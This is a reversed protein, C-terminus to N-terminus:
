QSALILTDSPRFYLKVEQGVSVSKDVQLDAILNLGDSQGFIRTVSGLYSLASLRVKIENAQDVPDLLLHEPRVIAIVKQGVVVDLGPPYKGLMKGIPTKLTVFGDRSVVEGTVSTAQGIFDAVFLSRPFEYVERPSGVQLLRGRNMVGIRDAISMAEEQDHTVYIATIGLERQIKRLETRTEIRLKADLNSLPEDMLLIQPEIALARAVAVRQQQGGSLQLPSRDELGKLQLLDLVDAVRKAKEEKTLKRMNLGFEVNEKVTMHPWLAYSQFVMGTGRENPPVNTMEKDGFYVNGTDPLEFGAIIRLLTTKGCGSPGLLAFFEKDEVQLTAQDVAVVEGFKKSVGDIRVGALTV